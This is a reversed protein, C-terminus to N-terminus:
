FSRQADGKKQRKKNGKLGEANCKTKKKKHHLRQTDTLYTEM